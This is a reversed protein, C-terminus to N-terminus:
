RIRLRACGDRGCRVHELVEGPIRTLAPRSVSTEAEGEFLTDLAFEFPPVGFLRESSKGPTAGPRWYVIVSAPARVAARETRELAVVDLADVLGAVLLELVVDVVGARACPVFALRRVQM